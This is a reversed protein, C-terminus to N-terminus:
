DTQSGHRDERLPAKLPVTLAHRFAPVIGEFLHSLRAVAFKMENAHFVGIQRLVM